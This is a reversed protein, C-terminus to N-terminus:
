LKFKIKSPEFPITLMKKKKNFDKIRGQITFLLYQGSCELNLDSLIRYSSKCRVKQGSKLYRKILYLCSAQLIDDIDEDKLKSYNKASDTFYKIGNLYM